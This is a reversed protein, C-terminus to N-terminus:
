FLATVTYVISSAYDGAAAQRLAVLRYCIDYSTEEGGANAHAIALAQEALFPNAFRSYNAGDNFISNVKGCDTHNVCTSQHLKVSYGFGTQIAPNTWTKAQNSPMQNQWGFNPLCHAHLSGDANLGSAPCNSTSSTLSLAQNQASTIVYGAGGTLTVKLRQGANVIENLPMYVQGNKRFYVDRDTSASDTVHQFCMAEGSAVGALQMGIASVIEGSVEVEQTFTSVGVERSTVLCNNLGHQCGSRLLEVKIPLVVAQNLVPAAGAPAQPNVLDRIIVNNNGNAAAFWDGVGGDGQYPCLFAHYRHISKGAALEAQAQVATLEQSGDENFVVTDAYRGQEFNFLTTSGAGPDNPDQPLTITTKPCQLGGISNDYLFAGEVPQNGSAVAEDTATPILFRFVGNNVGVEVPFGIQLDTTKLWSPYSASDAFVIQRPLWEIFFLIALGLCCGTIIKRM